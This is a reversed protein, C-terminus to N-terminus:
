ESRQPAALTGVCANGSGASYCRVRVVDPV